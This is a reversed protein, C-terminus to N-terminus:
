IYDGNEFPHQRCSVFVVCLSAIMFVFVLLEIFCRLKSIVILDVHNVVHPVGQLNKTRLDMQM